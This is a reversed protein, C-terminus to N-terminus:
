LATTEIRIRPDQAISELIKNEERTTRKWQWRVFGSSDVILGKPLHWRDNIFISFLAGSKYMYDKTPSLSYLKILCDNM